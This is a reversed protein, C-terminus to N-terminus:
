GRKRLDELFGDLEGRLLPAQECISEIERNDACGDRLQIRVRRLQRFSIGSAPTLHIACPEM